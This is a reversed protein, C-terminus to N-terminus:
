VWVEVNELKLSPVAFNPNKERGLAVVNVHKKRRRREMKGEKIEGSEFHRNTLM